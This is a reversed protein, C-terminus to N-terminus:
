FRQSRFNKQHHKSTKSQIPEINQNQMIKILTDRDDDAAAKNLIKKQCRLCQHLIQYGKKADYEIRIPIMLSQCESARDGPTLADVHKSYLCFRCHNRCTGVAKPNEKKCHECQFEENKHIPNKRQIQHNLM